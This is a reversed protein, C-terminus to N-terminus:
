PLRRHGLPWRFVQDLEEEPVSMGILSPERALLLWDSMQVEEFLSSMSYDRFRFERLTYKPWLLDLSAADVIATREGLMRWWGGLTVAREM